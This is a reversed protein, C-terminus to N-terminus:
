PQSLAQTNYLSQLRSSCVWYFPKHQRLKTNTHPSMFVLAVMAVLAGIPVFGARIIVKSYSLNILSHSIGAIFMHLSIINSASLAPCLSLNKDKTTILSTMTLFFPGYEIYQCSM